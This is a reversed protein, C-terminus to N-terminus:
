NHYNTIAITAATATTATATTTTTIITLSKQINQTQNKIKKTSALLNAPFPTELIVYKTDLQFYCRLEMLLLLLLLLYNYIPRQSLQSFIICCSIACLLTHFGATISLQQHHTIFSPACQETLGELSLPAQHCCQNHETTQQERCLIEQHFATYWWLLPLCVNQLCNTAYIKSIGGGSVKEQELLDVNNKVNRTTGKQHRSVRTTGSLIWSPQLIHRNRHTHM